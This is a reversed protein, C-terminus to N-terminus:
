MCWIDFQSLFVQRFAQGFVTWRGETDCQGLHIHKAAQVVAICSTAACRGFVALSKTGMYKSYIANHSAIVPVQYNPVPTKMDDLPVMTLAASGFTTAAAVSSSGM